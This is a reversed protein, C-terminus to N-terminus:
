GSSTRRSYFVQMPGAVLAVLLLGILAIALAAPLLAANGFPPVVLFVHYLTLGVLVCFGILRLASRSNRLHGPLLAVVPILSCLIFAGVGLELWPFRIRETFWSVKPPLDGYWIVLLAMFNVYTIGLVSALLLGGIDGRVPDDASEPALVAAFALAVVIQTIAVSAGFSSSIFPPETSLIWDVSVLSIVVGHFVLGVGSLVQGAPGQVRPLAVALMSWGALAIVSRVVFFPMNLYYTLVDPKAGVKASWPYLITIALVIPIALAFLLPILSAAPQLAPRLSKGWRGGTLRHIMLLVLSGIPVESWFAFATLWGGAVARPATVALGVLGAAALAAAAFLLARWHRAMRM